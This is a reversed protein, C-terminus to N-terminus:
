LGMDTLMMSLPNNSTGIYITDSIPPSAWIRLDFRQYDSSSLDNVGTSDSYNSQINYNYTIDNLELSDTYDTYVSNIEAFTYVSSLFETEIKQFLKDAIKLGQLNYTESYAFTAQDFLTNYSVIIITSFLMAALLVLVMQYGGM